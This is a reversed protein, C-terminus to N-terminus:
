SSTPSRSSCGSGTRGSAGTAIRSSGSCCCCGTSSGTTSPSRSCRPSAARACCVASRSRPRSRPFPAMRTLWALDLVALRLDSLVRWAAEFPLTVQEGDHRWPQLLDGPGLAVRSGLGISSSGTSCSCGPATVAAIPTRARRGPAARAGRVAGDGAPAAGARGELSRSRRRGPPPAREPRGIRVLCPSRTGAQRARPARGHHPRRVVSRRCPASRRTPVRPTAPHPAPRCPRTGPRPAAWAPRAPRTRPCTEEGESFRGVRLRGGGDGAPREAGASFRPIM